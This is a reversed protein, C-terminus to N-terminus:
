GKGDESDRNTAKLARIAQLLEYDNDSLYVQGPFAVQATERLWAEAVETAEELAKDRAESLQKKLEAIEAAQSAVQANAASLERELDRALELADDYSHDDSLYDTRPTEMALRDEKTPTTTM